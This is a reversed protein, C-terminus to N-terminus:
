GKLAGATMGGRRFRRLDLVPAPVVDIEERRAGAVFFRGVREVPETDRADAVATPGPTGASHEDRTAETGRVGAARGGPGRAPGPRPGTLPLAGGEPPLRTVRRRLDPAARGPGTIETAGLPVGSM